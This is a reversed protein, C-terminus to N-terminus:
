ELLFQRLPAEFAFHTGVLRAAEILAFVARVEHDIGFGYPVAEDGLGIDIFDNVRV